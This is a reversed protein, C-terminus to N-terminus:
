SIFFYVKIQLISLNFFLSVVTKFCLSQLFVHGGDRCRLSARNTANIVREVGLQSNELSTGPLGM